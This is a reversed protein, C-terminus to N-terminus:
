SPRRRPRFRRDFRVILSIRSSRSSFTSRQRLRRAAPTWEDRASSARASPTLLAATVRASPRRPPQAPRPRPCAEVSAAPSAPSDVLRHVHRQGSVPRLPEPVAGLLQTLRKAQRLLPEVLDHVVEVCDLTQARERLSAGPPVLLATPVPQRELLLQQLRPLDLFQLRHEPHDALDVALLQLGLPRVPPPVSLPEAECREPLLAQGVAAAGHLRRDTPHDVQPKLPADM